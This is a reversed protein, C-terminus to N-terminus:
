RAYTDFLSRVKLAKIFDTKALPQDLHVEFKAPSNSAISLFNDSSRASGGAVDLWAWLAPHKASVTVTYETGSGSVETAFQPDLLALEKPRVLLVTNQSVSKGKVEFSLWVLLNNAGQKQILDGLDMEGVRSSTQAALKVSQKGARLKTGALDTVRWILKGSVSKLEDSTVWLAITRNTSDFDGSVLVPSYFHRARYHLAKWRGFYDV